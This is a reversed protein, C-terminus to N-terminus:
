PDLSSEVSSEDEESIEEKICVGFMESKMEEFHKWFCDILESKTVERWEFPKNDDDCVFFRRDPLQRKIHRYIKPSYASPGMTKLTKRIAALFADTGPHNEAEFCVDNDSPTTNDGEDGGEKTSEDTSRTGKSSECVSLVQTSSACIGVASKKTAKKKQESNSLQNRHVTTSTVKKSKTASKSSTKKKKKGGKKAKKPQPMNGILEARPIQTIGGPHYRGDYSLDCSFSPKKGKPTRRVQRPAQSHTRGIPNNHLAHHPTRGSISAMRMPVESFKPMPLVDFTGIPNIGCFSPRSPSGGSSLGQSLPDYANNNLPTSRDSSVSLSNSRNEPRRVPDGNARAINHRLAKSYITQRHESMTLLDSGKAMQVNTRKPPDQRSEWNEKQYEGVPLSASRQAQPKKRSPPQEDKSDPPLSNRRELNIARPIPIGLSQSLDKPNPNSPFLIACACAELDDDSNETISEEDSSNGSGDTDFELDSYFSTISSMRADVSDDPEHLNSAPHEKSNTENSRRYCFLHLCGCFCCLCILIAIGMALGYLAQLYIPSSQWLTTPKRIAAPSYEVNFSTEVFFRKPFGEGSNEEDVEIDRSSVVDVRRHQLLSRQQLNVEGTMLVFGSSSFFLDELQTEVVCLSDDPRCAMVSKRDEAPLGNQDIAVQSLSADKSFGFNKISEIVIGAERSKMDPQICIRVAGGFQVPSEAQSTAENRANCRTAEAGFSEEFLSVGVFFLINREGMLEGVEYLARNFHTSKRLLLRQRNGFGFQLAVSGSVEIPGSTQFFQEAFDTDISCVSSGQPCYIRTSEDESTVQGNKVPSEVRSDKRFVLNQISSLYVGDQITSKTPVVCLRVREGRSVPPIFGTIEKFNSDCLFMDVGWMSSRDERLAVIGSKQKVEVDMLVHFQRVFDVQSSIETKKTWVRTCFSVIANGNGDNSVYPADFLNEPKMLFSLRIARLGEPVKEGMVPQMILEIDMTASNKPIEKQCNGDSYVAYELMQDPISESVMYDMSLLFGYWHINPESVFKENQNRLIPQLQRDDSYKPTWIQKEQSLVLSFVVHTVVLLSFLIRSVRSINNAQKLQLSKGNPIRLLLILFTHLFVTIRM